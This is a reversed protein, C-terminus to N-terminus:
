FLLLRLQRILSVYDGTMLYLGAVLLPTCREMKLEKAEEDSNVPAGGHILTLAMESLDIVSLDVTSRICDPFKTVM